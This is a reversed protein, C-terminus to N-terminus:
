VRGAVRAASGEVACGGGDLTPYSPLGSAGAEERWARALADCDREWSHDACRLWLELLVRRHYWLAEHGPLREIREASQSLLAEVRDRVDEAGQEVLRCLMQHMFNLASADSVHSQFWGEAFGVQQGLLAAEGGELERLRHTWAYYNRPYLQALRATVDLEHGLLAPDVPGGGQGRLSKLCWGRHAWASPKKSHKSFVLDVFALEDVVSLWGLVCLRKRVNWATAVDPNVMLMARTTESLRGGLPALAPESCGHERWADMAALFGARGQRFLAKAVGAAIALKHQLLLFNAGEELLPVFDYEDISPDEEFARTLEAYLSAEEPM